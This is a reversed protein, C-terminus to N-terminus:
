KELQFAEFISNVAVAAEGGATVLQDFNNSNTTIDGAAFLKPINTAQRQNVIIHGSENMELGLKQIFEKNPESGIEVFAGDAIVESVEGSTQVKELKSEGIFETVLTNFFVTINKLSLVQDIWITEGKLKPGRVVLTVHSAINSMFLAATTAADGGGIIVVKRNKFFFGDCTACYSIGHGLLKAEGPANLKRKKMGITLLVYKAKYSKESSSMITFSNDEKSWEVGNIREMIEETGLKKTQQRIRNMLEGGTIEEFGPYNGIIHAEATQGGFIDGFIINNMKYRSAYIGATYGAFGTGIIALDYIKNTTM